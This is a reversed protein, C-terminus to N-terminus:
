LYTISMALVSARRNTESPSRIEHNRGLKRSNFKLFVFEKFMVAYSISAWLFVSEFSSPGFKEGRLFFLCEKQTDFKRPQKEVPRAGLQCHLRSTLVNWVSVTLYLFTFCYLYITQYQWKNEVNEHRSDSIHSFNNLNQTQCFSASSLFCWFQFLLIEEEQTNQLM